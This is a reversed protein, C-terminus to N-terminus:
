FPIDGGDQNMPPADNDTPGPPRAGGGGEKAGLFQVRSAIIETTQRKNGDKDEWDRTKLKGEVFVQRGKSLFKACSEAQKGWVIVRHWETESHKEGDAGTWEENTAVSFDTVSKGSTTTRLEPDGGLNGIIEARNLAM